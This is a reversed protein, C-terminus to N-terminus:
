YESKPVERIVKCKSTRVKGDCDESVVIDKIDTECELIAMDVWKKGFLVAWNLISLHIGNSCSQETRKDCQETKEEGIIYKFNNNYESVYEENKKHVAKYLKVKKGNKEVPYFKEFVKFTPNKSITEKIQVFTVTKTKEIDVKKVGIQRILNMGRAVIKKASYLLVISSLGTM